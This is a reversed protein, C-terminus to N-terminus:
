LIRALTDKRRDAMRINPDAVGGHEKALHQDAKRNRVVVYRFSITRHFMINENRPNRENGSVDDLTYYTKIDVPRTM